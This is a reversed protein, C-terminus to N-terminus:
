RGGCRFNDFAEVYVELPEQMREVRFAEIARKRDAALEEESWRPPLSPPM